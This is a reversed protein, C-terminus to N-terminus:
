HARIESLQGMAGAFLTAGEGVGSEHEFADDVPDAATNGPTVQRFAESGPLGDVVPVITHGFVAGEILDHGGQNGCGVM